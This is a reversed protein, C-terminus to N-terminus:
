KKIQPVLAHGTIRQSSQVGCKLAYSWMVRYFKEKRRNLRGRPSNEELFIDVIAYFVMHFSLVGYIITNLDTKAKKMRNNKVAFLSNKTLGDQKNEEFVHKLRFTSIKLQM